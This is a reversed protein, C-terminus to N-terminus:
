KKRKKSQAEALIKKLELNTYSPYPSALAAKVKRSVAAAAFCGMSLLIEFIQLLIKLVEELDVSAMVRDAYQPTPSVQVLWRKFKPDFETM